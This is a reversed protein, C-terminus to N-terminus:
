ISLAKKIDQYSFGQRLLYETMKQDDSYRALRRKKSIIKRLAESQDDAGSAAAEIIESVVGKQRLEATIARLSKGKRQRLEMLWKAYTEDNLYNRELFEQHLKQIFNPDAKKRRLYNKFEGSSHPRSLLWSLAQNKLKGDGSIKQFKKLETNDIEQGQKIKTSIVEDLSLSFSYKGDLYVSVRDPNKVQQKIATVKM